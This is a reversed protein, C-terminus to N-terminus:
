ERYRPTVDLVAFLERVVFSFGPLVDGLDAIADGQLPGSDSGNRVVRASRNRPQLNLVVPVGHEVFWRARDLLARDSQGPSAIEVALDPPLFFDDAVEGSPDYPLRETQYVALDPVLSAVGAWNVRLESLTWYAPPDGAALELMFGFRMQLRGHRGKPSMKPTVVGDLYELAPEEEPLQLFEDFTLRRRTVAM